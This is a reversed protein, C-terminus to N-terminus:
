EEKEGGGDRIRDLARQTQISGEVSVCKVVEFLYMEGEVHACRFNSYPEGDVAHGLKM